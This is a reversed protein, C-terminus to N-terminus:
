EKWIQYSVAMFFYSKCFIFYFIMKHINHTETTQKNRLAQLAAMLKWTLGATCCLQLRMVVRAQLVIKKQRKHLMDVIDHRITKPLYNQPESLYFVCQVQGFPCAFQSSLKRGQTMMMMMMMMMMVILMM